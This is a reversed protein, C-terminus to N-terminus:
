LYREKLINIHHLIHGYTVFSIALTTNPHENTIGSQSLHEPTFSQLLLDTSKRVITFEEILSQWKRLTATSTATYQNEDFGPLPTKDGRSIRLARYAFIRETDILHQLMEKISWKGEAYRYEVKEEPISNFFDNIDISYKKIVEAVSEAKVLNIYNSFYPPFTGPVPAPM